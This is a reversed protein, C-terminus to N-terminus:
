NEEITIIGHKQDVKKQIYRKILHKLPYRTFPVVLVLGFGDTVFGPTILLVGGVLIMIGDILRDTPMIGKQLDKQFGTLVRLGEMKALTAGFVGTLIIILITNMGGIKQGIKILIYLEAAPLVTFLLILYPLM